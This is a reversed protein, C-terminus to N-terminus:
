KEKAAEIPLVVEKKKEEKVPRPITRMYTMYALINSIYFYIYTMFIFYGVCVLAMCMRWVALNEKGQDRCHYASNYVLVNGYILWAIEFNGFFCVVGTDIFLKQKNSGNCCGFVLLYVLDKAILLGFLAGYVFLWVIMEWQCDAIEKYNAGGIGFCLALWMMEFFINALTRVLVKHKFVTDLAENFNKQTLMRKIGFEEM